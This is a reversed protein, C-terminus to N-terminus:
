WPHPVLAAPSLRRPWPLPVLPLTAQKLRFRIGIAIAIVSSLARGLAFKLM